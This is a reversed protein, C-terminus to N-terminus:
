ASSSICTWLLGALRTEEGPSLAGPLILPDQPTPPILFGGELFRRFLTEWTLTAAEAPAAPGQLPLFTLYIGRCHWPSITPVTGRAAARLSGNYLVHNIKPYVPRGPAAILDYAGRTACALLVPSVPESPAFRSDLAKDLALVWPSLPWPLLPILIPAKPSLAPNELFPRWLSQSSPM